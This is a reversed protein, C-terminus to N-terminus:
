GRRGAGVLRDGGPARVTTPMPSITEGSTEVDTAAVPRRDLLRIAIALIWVGAVVRAPHAIVAAEVGDLPNALVGVRDLLWDAAAILALSAGVIRVPRYSRRTSMVQLAPFITATVLLQALEVGVNFALLAVVSTRGALGLDRLIGAFAMGHVLGFTLAIVPEGGRVLPRLAHVASVGVSAAILVEVPQGPVTIWGLSTAILTLSHGLTFATVVHLVKVASARPGAGPVWRHGVALLPAPLLLTLLFLLHDAGDLVHHLGLRAMDVVGVGASGDGITISRESASFVGPTSAQNQANVVVLVAEHDPVAEIIADYTITVDAPDAGGVDVAFDVRVTEIGESSQRLYSTFHVPWADGDTGRISLHEALYAEVQAEYADASLVSSREAAPLAQDLSAVALTLNGTMATETLEVTVASSALTHASAAGATLGLMTAAVVLAAAALGVFRRLTM